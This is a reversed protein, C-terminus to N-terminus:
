EASESGLFEAACSAGVAVLREGDTQQGARESRRGAHASQVGLQPTQMVLSRRLLSERAAIIEVVIEGARQQRPEAAAHAVERRWRRLQIQAARIIRVPDDVAAPLRLVAHSQIPRRGSKPSGRGTLSYVYDM